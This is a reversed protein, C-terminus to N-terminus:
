WFYIMPKTLEFAIIVAMSLMATAAFTFMVWIIEREFKKLISPDDAVRNLFDCRKRISYHRWSPSNPDAGNLLAVKELAATFAAAKNVVFAGFVDAQREFRRSAIGFFGGLYVLLTASWTLTAALRSVALSGGFYGRSVVGKLFYESLNGLALGFFLMSLIFLFFFSFHHYRAHGLEHGFVAQIEDESMTDLLTDTVLVYRVPGFFGTVCANAMSGGMTDWILIDRFGVGARRCIRELESRLPSEPMPRTVWICTLIFPALLYITFMAVGTGVLPFYMGEAMLPIPNWYIIAEDITWFILAPIVLILVDNRLKFSLYGRLRWQSKRLLRDVKHMPGWSFLMMALFPAMIALYYLLINALLVLAKLPPLSLVGVVLPPARRSLTEFLAGPALGLGDKSSRVFQAWDLVCMHAAFLALVFLVLMGRLLRAIRFAGLLDQPRSEFHDIIRNAALRSMAFVLLFSVGMVTLAKILTFELSGEPLYQAWRSLHVVGAMEPLRALVLAIIVPIFAM